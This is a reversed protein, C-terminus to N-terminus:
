GKHFFKFGSLFIGVCSIAFWVAGIFGKYKNLQADISQVHKLIRENTEETIQQREELIVVRELLTTDNM